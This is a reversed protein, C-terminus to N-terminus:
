APPHHDEDSGNEKITHDPNEALLDRYHDVQAGGRIRSRRYAETWCEECAAM